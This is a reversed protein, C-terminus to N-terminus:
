ATPEQDPGYQPVENVIAVNHRSSTSGGETGAITFEDSMSVGGFQTAMVYTATFELDFGPGILRGATLGLEIGLVPKGCANVRRLDGVTATFSMTTQSYPDFGSADFTQNLSNPFPLLLIPSSPEFSSETGDPIVTHVGVIFVGRGDNAGSQDFVVDPLPTGAENVVRYSTTTISGELEAVIDYTFDDNDAVVVNAIERTTVGAFTGENANAGSVSFEGKNRFHLVQEAPPEGVDRRSGTAPADLPNDSPCPDTPSPSPLLPGTTPRTSPPTYQPRVPPISIPSISVPTPPLPPPALAPAPSSQAGLVIDGSVERVGIKLPESPQGCAGLAVALLVVSAVARRQRARAAFRHTSRTM